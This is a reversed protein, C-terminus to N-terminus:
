FKSLPSVIEKRHKFFETSNAGQIPAAPLGSRLSFLSPKRQTHVLLKGTTLYMTMEDRIRYERLRYVKTPSDDTEKAEHRELSIIDGLGM